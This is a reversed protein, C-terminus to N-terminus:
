RLYSTLLFSPRAKIFFAELRPYTKSKPQIWRPRLRELIRSSLGLYVVDVPNPRPNHPGPVGEKRFPNKTPDHALHYDFVLILVVIGATATYGVLVGIGTIDSYPSLQLPPQLCDVYCSSNSAM